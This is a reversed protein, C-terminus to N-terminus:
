NVVAFTTSSMLNGSAGHNSYKTGTGVRWTFVAAALVAAMYVQSWVDGRSAVTVRYHLAHGAHATRPWADFCANASALRSLTLSVRLDGIGIRVYCQRGRLGKEIEYGVLALTYARSRFALSFNLIGRWVVFM